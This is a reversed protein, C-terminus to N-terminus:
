RRGTREPRHCTPSRFCAFVGPHLAFDRPTGQKQSVKLVCPRHSRDASSSNRLSPSSAALCGPSRCFSIADRYTGCPKVICLIVAFPLARVAAVGLGSGAVFSVPYRLPSHKRVSVMVDANSMLDHGAGVVAHVRCDPMTRELRKVLSLPIREDRDGSWVLVPREILGYSFGMPKSTRDLIALLDATGGKLSEAHSAALLATGLDVSHGAMAPSSTKPSREPAYTASTESAPLAPSPSRLSPSRSSTPSTSDRRASRSLLRKIPNTRPASPSPITTSPRSQILQTKPTSWGEDITGHSTQSLHDAGDWEAEDLSERPPADRSSVPARHNYGIAEVPLSPPKGLRWGQVRWEAAQATRLVGSPVLRLWKYATAADSPDDTAVWPALLHVSGQVRDGARLATALAYPAGASHALISFRDVDMVDLVEEVVAAWELFGRQADPVATTRGLGWRDLCILRLGLAEAMEDYLAVLYRVCGLGLFVVVPHGDAAGVDAV